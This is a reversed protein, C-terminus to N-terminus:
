VSNRIHTYALAHAPACLVFLCIVCIRCKGHAMLVAALDMLIEKSTPNFKLAQLLSDKAKESESMEKHCKGLRHLLYEENYEADDKRGTDSTMIEWAIQFNQLAKRHNGANFYLSAMGIRVSVSDEGLQIVREYSLLSKQTNGMSSAVEAHKTIGDINDKQWSILEEFIELAAQQEGKLAKASGYGLFPTLL